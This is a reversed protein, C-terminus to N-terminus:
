RADGYVVRQGALDTLAVGVLRGDGGHGCSPPPLGVQSPYESAVVFGRYVQRVGAREYTLEAIVGYGASSRVAPLEFHWLGSVPVPANTPWTMGPPYTVGAVGAIPADWALSPPAPAEGPAVTFARREAYASAHPNNVVGPQTGLLTLTAGAPWRAPVGVAPPRGWGLLSLVGTLAGASAPQSARPRPRLLTYGRESGFGNVSEVDLDLDAGELVFAWSGNVSCVLAANTPVGAVPIPLLTFSPVPAGM